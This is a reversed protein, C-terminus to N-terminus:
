MNIIKISNIMKEILPLNEDFTAQPSMYSLLFSTGNIDSILDMAAFPTNGQTITYITYRAPHSDIQYKTYNIPEALRFNDLYTKRLELLNAFTTTIDQQLLDSKDGINIIVATGCLFPKCFLKAMKCLSANVSDTQSCVEQTYSIFTVEASEFRNAKAKPVLETPYDVTFKRQPDSYTKIKPKTQPISEIEQKKKALTPFNTPVSVLFISVFLFIVLVKRFLHYGEFEFVLFSRM